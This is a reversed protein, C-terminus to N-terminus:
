TWLVPAANPMNFSLLAKENQEGTGSQDDDSHQRPFPCKRPGGCFYSGRQKHGPYEAVEGVAQKVAMHHIKDVHNQRPIPMPRCEVDGVGADADCCPKKNEITQQCLFDAM